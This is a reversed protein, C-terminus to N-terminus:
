RHHHVHTSLSAQLCLLLHAPGIEEPKADRGCGAIGNACLRRRESTRVAATPELRNHLQEVEGIGAHEPYNLKLVRVADASLDDMQMVKYAKAM